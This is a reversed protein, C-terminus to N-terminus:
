RHVRSLVRCELHFVRLLRCELLHHPVSLVCPFPVLATGSSRTVELGFNHLVHPSGPNVAHAASWLSYGDRWERNRHRTREFYARTLLLLGLALLSALTLALVRRLTGM